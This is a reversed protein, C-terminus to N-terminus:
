QSNTCQPNEFESKAHSNEAFNDNIENRILSIYEKMKTTHTEDHILTSNFKWFKKKGLDFSM